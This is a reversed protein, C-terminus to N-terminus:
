GNDRHSVTLSLSMPEPTVGAWVGLGTYVTGLFSAVMVILSTKADRNTFGVALTAVGGVLVGRQAVLSVSGYSERDRLIITIAAVTVMAFWLGVVGHLDHYLTGNIWSSWM